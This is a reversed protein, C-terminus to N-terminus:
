LLYLRIASNLKTCRWETELEGKVAYKISSREPGCVAVNRNKICQLWRNGSPHSSINRITFWPIEHWQLKQLIERQKKLERISYSKEVRLLHCIYYYFVVSCYSQITVPSLQIAKLDWHFFKLKQVRLSATPWRFSKLTLLGETGRGRSRVQAHSRLDHREYLSLSHIPSKKRQPIYSTTDLLM